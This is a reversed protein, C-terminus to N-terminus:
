GRVGVSVSILDCSINRTLLFISNHFNDNKGGTKNISIKVFVDEHKRLCPTTIESIEIQFRTTKISGGM